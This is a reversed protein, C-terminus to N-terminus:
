DERDRPPATSGRVVLETDIRERRTGGSHNLIALVARRGIEAIPQRITTLPPTSTASEPVGDFGVVSVDAPVSLDKEKLWDLALLAIRDSQALIATPPSPSAFAEELASQVTERDSLTEFIPRCNPRPQDWRIPFAGALRRAYKFAPPHSM